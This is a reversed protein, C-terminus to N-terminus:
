RFRQFFGSAPMQSSSSRRQVCEGASRRRRARARDGRDGGVACAALQGAEGVADDGVGVASQRCGVRGSAVRGRVVRTSAARSSGATRPATARRRGACCRSGRRRRRRAPRRRSRRGSGGRRGARQRPRPRRGARRSGCPARWAGAPRGRRPRQAPELAVARRASRGPQEGLLEVDGAGAARCGAAPRRGRGARELRAGVASPRVWRRVQGGRRGVVRDPVVLPFGHVVVCGGRWTTTTVPAEPPMPRAVARAKPSRPAVRRAAPGRRARPQVAAASRPARPRRGGAPRGPRCRRRRHPSRRAAAGDLSSSPGISTQTLTAKVETKARKSSISGSSYRRTM